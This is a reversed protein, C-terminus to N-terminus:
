TPYEDLEQSPFNHNLFPAPLAFLGEYRGEFIRNLGIILKNRPSSNEARMERQTSM